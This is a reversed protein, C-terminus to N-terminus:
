FDTFAINYSNIIKDSNSCWFRISDESIISNADNAMRASLYHGWPTVYIGHSNKGIRAKSINDKQTHTKPGLKKGTHAISQKSRTEETIIKGKMNAIHEASKPKGKLGKSINDRVKYPRERGALAKSINDRVEQTMSTSVSKSIKEKHEDSLTEGKHTPIGRTISMNIYDSSKKVDNEILLRYEENYAEERTEHYSIIETKFLQPNDKLEKNWIKSYKKSSVSGHYRNTIKEVSTSGIYKQPLLDGTYKTLYVCFDM